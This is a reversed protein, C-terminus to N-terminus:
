MADVTVCRTRRSRCKYKSGDDHNAGSYKEKCASSSTSTSTCYTIFFVNFFIFSLLLVTNRAVNGGVEDYTSVWVVILKYHNHGSAGHVSM